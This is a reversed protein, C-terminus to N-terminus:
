GSSDTATAAPRPATGALITPRSSASGTNADTDVPALAFNWTHYSKSRSIENETGVEADPLDTEALGPDENLDYKYASGLGDKKVIDVCKICGFSFTLSACPSM